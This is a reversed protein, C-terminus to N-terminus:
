ALAQVVLGEVSLALDPAASGSKWEAGAYTIRDPGTYGPEAPLYRVDEELEFRLTLDSRQGDVPEGEFGVLRNHEADGGQEALWVTVLALLHTLSGSVCQLEVAATYRLRYLLLDAGARSGSFETEGSEVVAEIREPAIAKADRLMTVLANLKEM